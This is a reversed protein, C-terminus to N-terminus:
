RGASKPEMHPDERSQKGLPRTREDRLCPLNFYKRWAHMCAHGQAGDGHMPRRYACSPWALASNVYLWGVSRPPGRPLVRSAAATSIRRRRCRGSLHPIRRRGPSGTGGVQSLWGTASSFDASAISRDFPHLSPIIFGQSASGGGTRIHACTHLM